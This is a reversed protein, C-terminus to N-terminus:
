SPEEAADTLKRAKALWDAEDSVPARQEIRRVLERVLAQRRAEREEASLGSLNLAGAAMHRHGGASGERGILQKVLRECHAGKRSGRLSVLLSDQHFATCCSWTIREARLLLDATEAVVEPYKVQDFHSWAVCGYVYANRMAERLRAYYARPLPAHRIRGLISMNARGMLEIYAARDEPTYERSLDLTETAIAYVMVSALWTPVSLEAARLYGYLLSAAAGAKTRVDCYVGKWRARERRPIHHDFVAVPKAFSPVTVNGAWPATDVFITPVPKTPATYQSTLRWRYRFHRLLERNEARSVMGTFLIRGKLAYHKALLLEVAAAAALADPDPYDHTLILVRGKAPLVARLADLARADTENPASM